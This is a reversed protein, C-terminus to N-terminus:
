RDQNRLIQLSAIFDIQTWVSFQIWCSINGSQHHPWNRYGTDFHKQSDVKRVTDRFALQAEFRKPVQEWWQEFFISKYHKLTAIGDHYEGMMWCYGSMGDDLLLWENVIARSPKVGETLWIVLPYHTHRLWTGGRSTKVTSIWHRFLRLHHWMYLLSPGHLDMFTWSPWLMIPCTVCSQISNREWFSLCDAFKAFNSPYWGVGVTYSSGGPSPRDHSARVFARGSWHRAPTIRRRAELDSTSDRSWLNQLRLCMAKPLWSSLHHYMVIIFWSLHVYFQSIIFM